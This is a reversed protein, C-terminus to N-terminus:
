TVFVFSSVAWEVAGAMGILVWGCGRFCLGLVMLLLGPVGFGNRIPEVLVVLLHNEWPLQMRSLVPFYVLGASAVYAALVVWIPVVGEADTETTAPHRAGARSPEHKM